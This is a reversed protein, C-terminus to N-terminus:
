NGDYAHKKTTRMQQIQTPSPVHAVSSHDDSYFWGLWVGAAVRASNEDEEQQTESPACKRSAKNELPAHEKDEEAEHLNLPVHDNQGHARPGHSRMSGYTVPIKVLRSPSLGPKVKPAASTNRSKMEGVYQLDIWSTLEIKERICYTSAPQQLNQEKSFVIDKPNECTMGMSSKRDKPNECTMVEKSNNAEGLVIILSHIDYELIKKEEAAPAASAVGGAVPAAVAAVPAAGGRHFFNHTMKCLVQRLSNYSRHARINIKRGILYGDTHVKAFMNAPPPRAGAATMNRPAAVNIEEDAAPIDEHKPSDLKVASADPKPVNMAATVLNRRSTHVPPWGVAAPLSVPATPAASPMYTTAPPPRAISRDHEAAAKQQRAALSWPHMFGTPSPMFAATWSGSLMNHNRAHGVSLESATAVTLIAGSGMCGADDGSGGSGYSGARAGADGGGDGHSLSIGLSLDLHSGHFCPSSSSAAAEKAKITNTATTICE